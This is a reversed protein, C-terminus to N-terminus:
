LNNNIYEVYDLYQEKECNIRIKLVDGDDIVKHITNEGANFISQWELFLMPANSIKPVILVWGNEYKVKAKM